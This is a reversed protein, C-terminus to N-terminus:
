MVRSVNKSPAIIAIPNGYRGLLLARLTPQITAERIPELRKRMM